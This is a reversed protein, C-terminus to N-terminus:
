LKRAESSLFSTLQNKSHYSIDGKLKNSLDRIIAKIRGSGKSKHENVFKNIEDIVESPMNHSINIGLLNPFIKSYADNVATPNPALSIYNYLFDPRMYCSVSYKNHFLACVTKHTITDSSLWWTNYGSWNESAAEKNKERLSFITLILSADTDSKPESKNKMLASKLTKFEAEDVEVNQKTNVYQIGFEDSLFDILEQKTNRLDPSCFHDIFNKFDRVKGLLKAYFYARLLIKPIYSITDLDTYIEESEKDAYQEKYLTTIMRIHGALEDLIADNVRLKVGTRNASVLLSWYRRNEHSLFVESLAPIIISTCVFVELKSAMSSFYLSLKPDCQMMFLLMYTNSLSRLFTKQEITGNYVTDRITALLAAKVFAKNKQIVASHDVVESIIDPLSKEFAELSGKQNILNSFEIGQKHFLKNFTKDLLSFVDGVRIDNQEKLFFKFREATVSKFNEHLAYDHINKAFLEERTEYPLCFGDVESHYNIKRPKKSLFILREEIQESLLKPSFSLHKNIEKEIELRTKFIGKDPDTGELAYLILTDALLQNLQTNPTRSEWQQRLFVYLRPDNILDGIVSATGPKQFEHLYSDVFVRFATVTAKSFNANAYFWNLDYITVHKKQTNWIEECLLDKNKLPQNTVYVFRDFSIKNEILKTISNKAKSESEKDISIQYITTDSKDNLWCRDLGDIGRDKLGGVPLFNSGIVASLMQKAFDEFIFGDEIISLTDRFAEPSIGNM